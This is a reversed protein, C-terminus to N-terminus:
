SRAMHTLSITLGGGGRRRGEGGGAPHITHHQARPLVVVKQGGLHPLSTHLSSGNDAQLLETGEGTSVDM